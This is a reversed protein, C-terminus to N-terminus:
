PKRLQEVFEAHVAAPEVREVHVLIGAVVAPDRGLRPFEAEAMGELLIEPRREIRLQTRRLFVDVAERILVDLHVAPHEGAEAARREVLPSTRCPGTVGSPGSDIKCVSRVSTHTESDAAALM